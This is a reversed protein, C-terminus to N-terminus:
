EWNMTTDRLSPMNLLALTMKRVFNRSPTEVTVRVEWLARHIPMRKSGVDRMIQRVKKCSSSVAQALSPSGCQLQKHWSTQRVGIKCLGTKAGDLAAACCNQQLCAQTTQSHKRRPRCRRSQTLHGPSAHDHFSAHGHRCQKGLSEMAFPVKQSRGSSILTVHLLDACLLMAQWNHLPNLQLLQM